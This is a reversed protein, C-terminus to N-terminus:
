SKINDIDIIKFKTKGILLYPEEASPFTLARINDKLELVDEILSLDHNLDKKEFYLYNSDKKIENYDDNVISQINNKFLDVALKETKQFLTYATDTELIKLKDTFYLPGDDLSSNVRHISTGHEWVDLKRANIIAFTTSYRGRYKLKYSHHFNLTVCKNFIKEPILKWYNVSLILDISLLEIEDIEKIVPYNNLKCFERVPDEWWGTFPPPLVGIIILDKNLEIIEIIEICLQRSGLIVVKKM